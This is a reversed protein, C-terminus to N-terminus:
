VTEYKQGNESLLCQIEHESLLNAPVIDDEDLVSFHPQDSPARWLSLAVKSVASICGCDKSPSVGM